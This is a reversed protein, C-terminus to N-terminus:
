ATKEPKQPTFDSFYKRKVDKSALYNVESQYKEMIDLITEEFEILEARVHEGRAEWKKVDTSLRDIEERKKKQADEITHKATEQASILALAVSQVNDQYQLLQTKLEEIQAILSRNENSLEDLRAQKLALEKEYEQKLSDISENVQKADYGYLRKRFDM